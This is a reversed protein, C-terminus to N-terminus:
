EIILKKTVQQNNITLNIFYIGQKLNNNKNIVVKSTSGSITEIVEADVLRGTVDYVNVFAKTSAPSIFELVSSTTTPNPYMSLNLSNEFENIGVTGSIKFEDIYLNQADGLSPDNQFWFRFKVDRKNNLASLTAPTFNRTIWKTPANPIYPATMTGGSAAMQNASTEPSGSLTLWTGGCDLSYEFKFGEGTIGPKRAFSYDYSITIASTNTFNYQPTEIIDIHSRRGTFGGFSSNANLLAISKETGQSGYDATSWSVSSYNPNVINWKQPIGNEFSENYPLSIDDSNWSVNVFNERTITSTGNANTATLTVAYKGPSSYTISPASVTSTSPSGGEFTWSLSTAPSYHSTNTFVIAQGSCTNTKGWFDAKPGCVGAPPNIIGTRILNAVGVLSDRGAVSSELVSQMKEVQGQTFMRPCSSYDMINNINPRVGPSCSDNLTLFNPCNSFFGSTAPTDYIDDNGCIVGANNSGGFTHSLGLWHGIEHSMSRMTLMGSIFSSNYVIADSGVNPSTGPLYTYGVITGQTAGGPIINDVIYINMYNRPSWNATGITSYIYNYINTQSWQTNENYHHLIGNTCNGLPDRKALAFNIRSNVYLPEFLPDILTTDASKRQFDKNVQDMLALVSADSVNPSTGTAQGTHLIHFVVPITYSKTSVTSKNLAKNQKFKSFNKEMETEAAKVQEKYGPITNMFYETANYTNCPQVNQATSVSAALTLASAAYLLTKKM